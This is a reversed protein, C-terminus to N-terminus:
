FLCNWYKYHIYFFSTLRPLAVGSTFFNPLQYYNQLIQMFEVGLLQLTNHGKTGCKPLIMRLIYLDKEERLSSPRWYDYRSVLATICQLRFQPNKLKDKLCKQNSSKKRIHLAYNTVKMLYILVGSLSTKIIKQCIILIKKFFIFADIQIDLESDKQSVLVCRPIRIHGEDDHQM